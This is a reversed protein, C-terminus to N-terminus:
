TILDAAGSSGDRLTLSISGRSSEPLMSTYYVKKNLPTGSPPYLPPPWSDSAEDLAGVTLVRPLEGPITVNCVGSYTDNTNGASKVLLVGANWAADVATRVGCTNNSTGCWLAIEAPSYTDTPNAYAFRASFNVVDVGSEVADELAQVVSCNSLSYYPDPDSIRYHFLTTDATIGSRQRRKTSVGNAPDEGNRIPATRVSVSVVYSNREM